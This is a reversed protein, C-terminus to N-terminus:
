RPRCPTGGSQHPRFRDLFALARVVGPPHAARGFPDAGIWAAIEAETVDDEPQPRRWSPYGLEDQIPVGLAPHCPCSAWPCRVPAAELAERLDERVRMLVWDRAGAQYYLAITGDERYARWKLRFAALKAAVFAARATAPWTEPHYVDLGRAEAWAVYWGPVSM